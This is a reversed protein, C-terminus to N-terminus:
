MYNWLLLRVNLVVDNWNPHNCPLFFKSPVLVFHYDPVMLFAEATYGLGCISINGYKSVVMRCADTVMCVMIGLNEDIDPGLYQCSATSYLMSGESIKSYLIQMQQRTGSVCGCLMTAIVM